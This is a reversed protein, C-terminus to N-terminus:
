NAALWLILTNVPDFHSSIQLGNSLLSNTSSAAIQSHQARVPDVLVGSVSIVFHNHNFGEVIADTVVGADVPNAVCYVLM